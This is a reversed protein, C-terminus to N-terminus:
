YIELLSLTPVVDIALVSVTPPSMRASLNMPKPRFPIVELEATPSFERKELVVPALLVAM